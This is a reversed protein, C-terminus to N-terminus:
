SSQSGFLHYHVKSRFVIARAVVNALSTAGKEILCPPVILVTERTVEEKRPKTFGLDFITDRSVGEEGEADTTKPHTIKKCSKLWLPHAVTLHAEGGKRVGGGRRRVSFIM